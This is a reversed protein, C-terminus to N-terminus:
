NICNCPVQLSTPSGNKTMVKSKIIKWVACKKHKGDNLEEHHDKVADLLKSTIQTSWTFGANESIYFM